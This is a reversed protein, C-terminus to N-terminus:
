QMSAFAFLDLMNGTGLHMVMCLLNVPVIYNNCWVQQAVDVEFLEDSYLRIAAFLLFALCLATHFTFLPLIVQYYNYFNILLLNSRLM